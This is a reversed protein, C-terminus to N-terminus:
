PEGPLPGFAPPPVRRRSASEYASAVELLLAERGPDARFVLAFPLGPAPLQTATSSDAGVYRTRDASLAMLPDYVTRVFGAPVQVETLGANPGMPLEGRTDNAPSPWGPYGIRGPPLSTHLRVLLDLHNEQMVKMDVRQLLERLKARENTAQISGPPYLVHPFQEWNRFAARQKTLFALAASKSTSDQPPDVSVSVVTLGKRAYKEHLAVVGPFKEKCPPCFTGWVDVLVVQGKLGRIEAALDDYRVADLKVAPPAGYANPLFLLSLLVLRRM